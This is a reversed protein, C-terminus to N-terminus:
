GGASKRTQYLAIGTLNSEDYVGCREFGVSALQADLQNLSVVSKHWEVILRRVRDLLFQGEHQVFDLEAGEIDIKMLDVDTNGFLRNWEHQVSIAPVVVDAVRGKVPLQDRPKVSLLSSAAISPHLHFIASKVNPSLGVAGHTVACRSLGNRYMHWTAEAVMHPHADVLLGIRQPNPQVTSLWLAFLGANCGLDIFSGITYDVVAPSYSQHVFVEYELSLQDLSTVRYFMGSPNVRRHLPYRRLVFGAVPVIRLAAVVHHLWRFRGFQVVLGAVMNLVPTRFGGPSGHSQSSV